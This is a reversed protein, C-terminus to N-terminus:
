CESRERDKKLCAVYNHHGFALLPSGAALTALTPGLVLLFQHPLCFLCLALGVLASVTVILDTTYVRRVSPVSLAQWYHQMRPM